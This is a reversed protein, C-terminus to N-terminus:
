RKEHKGVYTSKGAFKSIKGFSGSSSKDKGTSEHAPREHKPRPMDEGSLSDGGSKKSLKPLNAFSKQPAAKQSLGDNDGGDEYDAAGDTKRTFKSLKGGLGVFPNSPVPAEDDISASEEDDEDDDYDSSDRGKKSFKPLKGSLKAFPNTSATEEEGASEFVEDDSSYESRYKIASSKGNKEPNYERVPEDEEDVFGSDAPVAKKRATIGAKKSPLINKAKDMIVPLKNDVFRDLAPVSFNLCTDAWKKGRNKKLTKFIFVTIYYAAFGSAVGIVLAALVDTPYHAMLYNRAVMMLFVWIASPLIWKKGKQLIIATCGAAAATVHGSPFSFGDESPAGVAKWWERYTDSAVFPRLRAVSDKLIINTILAGCAVAGFLCVGFKRTKPFLMCAISILFFIIGKEGLLTILKFIFTFVPNAVLHQINLFFHDFSAIM